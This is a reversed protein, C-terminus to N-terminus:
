KNEEREESGLESATLMSAWTAECLSWPVSHQSADVLNRCQIDSHGVDYSLTFGSQWKIAYKGTSGLDMYIPREHKNGQARYESSYAKSNKSQKWM